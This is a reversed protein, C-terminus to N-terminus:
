RRAETFATLRCRTVGVEGGAAEPVSRVSAVLRYAEGEHLETGSTDKVGATRWVLLAGSPRHRMHVTAASSTAKRRRIGATSRSRRRFLQRKPQRKHSGRTIDDDGHDDGEDFDDFIEEEDESELDSGSEEEERVAILEVVVQPYYHMLLRKLLSIRPGSSLQMKRIFLLVEPANQAFYFLRAEGSRMCVAGPM